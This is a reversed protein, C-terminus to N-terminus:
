DWLQPLDKLIQFTRVTFSKKVPNRPGMKKKAEKVEDPVRGTMIIDSHHKGGHYVIETEDSWFCDDKQFITLREVRFLIKEVQLDEDSKNSVTITCVMQHSQIDKRIITRRATTSIGYCLEGEAPGGFWTKTLTVTPIETLVRSDSYLIAVWLPIRVYIRATAGPVLRFTYEPVVIVPRDPTQPALQLATHEDKMVWRSWVFDKDSIKKNRVTTMDRSAVWIENANSRLRLSLNGIDRTITADQELTFDGWFQDPM